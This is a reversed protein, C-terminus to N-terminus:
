STLSMALNYILKPVPAKFTPRSGSRRLCLLSTDMAVRRAPVVGAHRRRGPASGRISLYAMMAQVACLPHSSLGIHLDAGKHFPDTKSAKITVRM